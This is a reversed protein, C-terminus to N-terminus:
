KFNKINDTYILKLATHLLKPQIFFHLITINSRHLLVDLKGRADAQDRTNLLNEDMEKQWISKEIAQHYFILKLNVKMQTM